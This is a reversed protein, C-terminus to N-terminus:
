YVYKQYKSRSIRPISCARLFLLLIIFSLIVLSIGIAWWMISKDVDPEQYVGVNNETLCSSIESYKLWMRELHNTTLLYGSNPEYYIPLRFTIQVCTEHNSWSFPCQQLKSVLVNEIRFFFLM